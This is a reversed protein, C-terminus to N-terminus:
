NDIITYSRFIVNNAIIYEYIKCHEHLLMVLYIHDFNSFIQSNDKVCAPPRHVHKSGYGLTNKMCKPGGACQVGGFVDGDFWQGSPERGTRPLHDAYIHAYIHGNDEVCTSPHDLHKSGYGLTNKM